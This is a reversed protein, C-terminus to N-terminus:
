QDTSSKSLLEPKNEKLWLNVDRLLNEANKVCEDVASTPVSHGSYDAVTRQKRLADLIIVTQKDLNITQSLLQIMSM